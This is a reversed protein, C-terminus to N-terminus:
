DYLESSEKMSKERAIRIHEPMEPEKVKYEIIKENGERDGGSEEKKERIEKLVDEWGGTGLSTEDYKDMGISQLIMKLGALRDSSKTANDIEDKIGSVIYDFSIGNKALSAHYEKRMAIKDLTRYVEAITRVGIIDRLKKPDQTVRLAKLLMIQQANNQSNYAYKGQVFVVPKLNKNM